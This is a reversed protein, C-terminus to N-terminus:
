IEVQEPTKDLYPNDRLWHGLRDLHEARTMLGEWARRWGDDCSFPNERGIKAAQLRLEASAVSLVAIAEPWGQSDCDQPSAFDAHHYFTRSM